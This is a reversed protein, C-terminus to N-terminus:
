GASPARRAGAHVPPRSLRGRAAMWLYIALFGTAIVIGGAVADAIYHNATGVITFLVVGPYSLALLRLPWSRVLVVAVMAVMFAYGFHMSPVAAHPNFLGSLIGEQLDIDSVHALTDVFREGNMLRPPAVPFFTYVILALANAALFANRVYPYVRAHRKYIWVFFLVTVIWHASMYFYNLLGTLQVHNLMWEQISAEVFLGSSREWSIIHAANEFAQSPEGVVLARSIQYVLLAMAFIAIEVTWPHEGRVSAIRSRMRAPGVPAVGEVVPAASELDEEIVIEPPPTSM